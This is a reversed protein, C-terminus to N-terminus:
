INFTLKDPYGKRYDYLEVEEITKMSEVAYLHDTTKNYCQIAYVELASLMSLLQQCPIDFSVGKERIDLRYHTNGNALYNEVATKLSSRQVKDAWYSITNGNYTIYCENVSRSSDNDNIRQIMRDKERKLLEEETPNYEPTVYEVWGDKLIMEETPNYTVRGDKRIVIEQRQKIVTKGDIQKEYRKM